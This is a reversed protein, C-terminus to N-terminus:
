TKSVNTISSSVKTPNEFLSICDLWTRTETAWTTPITAWTEAGSVKTPNSLSTTPRNINTIAM